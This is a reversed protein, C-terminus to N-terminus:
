QAPQAGGRAPAPPQGMRMFSRSFLSIILMPAWSPMKAFGWLVYAIPLAVGYRAFLGDFPHFIGEYPVKDEYKKETVIQVIDKATTANRSMGFIYVPTAPASQDPQPHPIRFYWISPPGGAWMNCLVQEQDCDLIALKPRNPELALIPVSENWAKTVNGCLGYCTANGGTMYVMWDEPGEGGDASPALVDNWNDLTLPTVVYEAIRAATVDVPTEAAPAVSSSMSSMSSPIISSAKNFWGKVKDMLPVQADEALALAPLALLLSRTFRM